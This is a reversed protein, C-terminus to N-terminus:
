WHALACLNIFSKCTATIGNFNASRISIYMILCDLCARLLCAHYQQTPDKVADLSAFFAEGAAQIQSGFHDKWIRLYKNYTEKDMAGTNKFDLFIKELEVCKEINDILDEMRQKFVSGPDACLAETACRILQHCLTMIFHKGRRFVFSKGNEMKSVEAELKMLRAVEILGSDAFAKCVARLMNMLIHFPGPLLCVKNLFKQEEDSYASFDATHMFLQLRHYIDEDQMILIPCEGLDERDKFRLFVTHFYDILLENSTPLAKSIGITGNKPSFNSKPSIQCGIIDCVSSKLSCEASSAIMERLFVAVPAANLISSYVGEEQDSMELVLEPRDALDSLKYLPASGDKLKQYTVEDLEHEVSSRSTVTRSSNGDSFKNGNSVRDTFSLNDQVGLFLSQRTDFERPGENKAHATIERQIVDNCRILGYKALFNIVSPKAYLKLFLELHKMLPTSCTGRTLLQFLYSYAFDHRARLHKERVTQVKDTGFEEVLADEELDLDPADIDIWDSEM